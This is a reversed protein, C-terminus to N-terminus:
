RRPRRGRWTSRRLASARSFSATQSPRRVTSPISRAACRARWPASGSAPRSAAAAAATAEPHSITSSRRTRSVSDPTSKASSSAVRKQRQPALGSGRPRGGRAGRPRNARAATDASGSPPGSPPPGSRRDAARVRRQPRARRPQAARRPLPLARPLQRLEVGLLECLLLRLVTKHSVVLVNGGDHEHKARLEAVVAAARAAVAFPSEGGPAGITPERRWLAYHAPDRAAAEDKSLGQWGGFSMEDLRADRQVPLAPGPRGPSARDRVDAGPHQDRDGALPARRLGRRLLCGDRPRRGDAARRHSRLLSGRRSFETEGHRLLYLSLM